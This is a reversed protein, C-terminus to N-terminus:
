ILKLANNNKKEASRDFDSIALMETSKAFIRDRKEDGENVFLFM